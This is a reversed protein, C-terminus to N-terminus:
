MSGTRPKIGLQLVLNTPQTLAVVSNKLSKVETRIRAAGGFLFYVGYTISITTYEKFKYMLITCTNFIFMM